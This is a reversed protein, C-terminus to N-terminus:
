STRLSLSFFPFPCGNERVYNLDGGSRPVSQERGGFLVRPVNLGYEIYIHMGALAYLVGAFWFLLSVGTSKTQAMVKHPTMFIGSGIMRNLVLCVVDLTTLRFRPAPAETVIEDSVPSEGLGAAIPDPGDDDDDDNNSDAENSYRAQHHQHHQQQPYGVFGHDFSSPSRPFPSRGSAAAHPSRRADYDRPPDFQFHSPSDM